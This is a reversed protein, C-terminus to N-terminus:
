DLTLTVQAVKFLISTGLIQAEVQLIQAQRVVVVVLKIIRHM